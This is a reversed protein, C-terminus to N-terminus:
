SIVKLKQWSNALKPFFYLQEKLNGPSLTLWLPLSVLPMVCERVIPDELSAFLNVLFRLYQTRERMTLQQQQQASSSSSSSSTKKSSSSSAASSAASAAAARALLAKNSLSHTTHPSVKLALVTSLFTKFLADGRAHFSEWISLLNERFKENVLMLISM